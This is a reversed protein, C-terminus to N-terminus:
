VASAPDAVPLAVSVRVPERATETDANTALFTARVTAREQWLSYVAIGFIVSGVLNAIAHWWIRYTWLGPGAPL